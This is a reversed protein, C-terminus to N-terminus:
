GGYNLMTGPVIAPPIGFRKSPDPQLPAYPGPRAPANYLMSTTAKLKAVEITLAPSGDPRLMVKPQNQADVVIIGVHYGRGSCEALAGEAITQALELTLVKSAPLQAHTTTALMCAAVGAVIGKCYM